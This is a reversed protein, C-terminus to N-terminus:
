KQFGGQSWFEGPDLMDVSSYASGDEPHNLAWQVRTRSTSGVEQLGWLKVSTEAMPDGVYPERCCQQGRADEFAVGDMLTAISPNGPGCFWPHQCSHHSLAEFNDMAWAWAQERTMDPPMVPDPQYMRGLLEELPSAGSTM